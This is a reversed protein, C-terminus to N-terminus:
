DKGDWNVGFKRLKAALTKRTVGLTTAAQTKNGKTFTLAKEVALRELMDLNLPLEDTTQSTTPALNLPMDKATIYDGRMLIVAREMANQLERINGPWHYATMAVLADQTLGKVTKHNKLAYQRIFFNALGPLDELRDRLAPVDITVVNLRWFLDERFRGIEVEKKLNRNTAALFRVDVKETIDAGIPQIEGEQLVRLLKAQFAPSTEGIEDLFVTGGSCAKLRGDRRKEAGTFAGKDHGFLESELLNEAMAACNITSFPASERLSKAQILRAVMEKGVGSEGTILVTAETPAALEVLDLVKKFAPSEGLLINPGGFLGAEKEERLRSHELAREMTMKVVEMDLPKTLYDYAGAKLAAVADPVRSFATMIVIPTETNLGEKKISSLAALGDMVGMRVDMLILRFHRDQALRVAEAGDTATQNDYGWGGLVTKLMFLHERDDDVILIPDNM